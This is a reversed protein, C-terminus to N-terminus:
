YQKFKYVHLYMTSSTCTNKKGFKQKFQETKKEVFLCFLFRLLIFIKCFFSVFHANHINNYKKYVSYFESLNGIIPEIFVCKQLEM